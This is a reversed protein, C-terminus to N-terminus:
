ILGRAFSKEPSIYTSRLSLIRYRYESENWLRQNTQSTIVKTEVQELNFIVLRENQLATSIWEIKPIFKGDEKGDEKM